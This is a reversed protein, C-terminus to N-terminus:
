APEPPPDLAKSMPPAHGINGHFTIGFLATNGREYGLNIDFNDNVRYVLGLNLPSDQKLHNHKPEHQYDNGDYELKLRLPSWPTQYEIGGFLATPGRFWSHANFTGGTAVDPSPRTNFRDDIWGFPN